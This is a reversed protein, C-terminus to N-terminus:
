KLGARRMREMVQEGFYDYNPDYKRKAKGSFAIRRFVEVADVKPASVILGDKGERFVVTGSPVIGYEDRLRKPILVQGKPGVKVRFEVM